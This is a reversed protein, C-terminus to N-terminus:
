NLISVKKLFFHQLFMAEVLHISEMVFNVDNEDISYTLIKFFLRLFCLKVWLVDFVSWYLDIMISRYNYNCQYPCSQQQFEDVKYQTNPTKYTLQTTSRETRCLVKKNSVQSSTTCSIFYQLKIWIHSYQLLGWHFVCVNSLKLFGLVYMNSYIKSTTALQEENFM